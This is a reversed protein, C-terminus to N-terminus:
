KAIRVSWFVPAPPATDGVVRKLEALVDDSAVHGELGVTPGKEQRLFAHVGSFRADGVLRNHVRELHDRVPALKREQEEKWAAEAKRCEPCYSVRAGWTLGNNVCGGCYTSWAHPFQNKRAAMEVDTWRILGYTISVIAEQRPLDHVECRSGPQSVDILVLRSARWCAGITLAVLLAVILCKRM